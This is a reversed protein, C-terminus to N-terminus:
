AVIPDHIPCLFQGTLQLAGQQAGTAAEASLQPLANCLHGGTLGFVRFFNAPLTGGNNFFTNLATAVNQQNQSLTTGAGLAATLKLIVDQNNNYSLSVGFVPM